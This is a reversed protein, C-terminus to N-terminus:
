PKFECFNGGKNKLEEELEGEEDSLALDVFDVSDINTLAEERMWRIKGQQVLVISEDKTALILRCTQRNKCKAALINPKGLTSPWANTTSLEELVNGTQIDSTM